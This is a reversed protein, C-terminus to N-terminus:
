RWLKAEKKMRNFQKNFEKPYQAKVEKIITESVQGEYGYVKGLFYSVTKFECLSGKEVTRDIAGVLDSYKDLPANRMASSILEKYKASFKVKKEKITLRFM